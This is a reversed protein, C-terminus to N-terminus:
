LSKFTNTKGAKVVSSRNPHYPTIPYSLIKSQTRLEDNMAILAQKHQILHFM